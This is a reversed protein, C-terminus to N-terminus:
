LGSVLSSSRLLGFRRWDTKSLGEVRSFAYVKYVFFIGLGSRGFRLNFGIGM